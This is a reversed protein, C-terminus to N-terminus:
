KKAKKADRSVAVTLGAFLFLLTMPPYAYTVHCPIDALDAILCVLAPLPLLRQWFPLSRNLLLRVAHFVFAACFAFLLLFGPLGNELFTQLLTCHCHHVPYLVPIRLENVPPIPNHVSQGLLLNGPSAFIVQLVNKWVTLRGALTIDPDVALEFGRHAIEEAGEAAARSLLLAGRSRIMQFADLTYSQLFAVAVASAAFLVAILGWKGATLALSGPRGPKLRDYAALAILLAFTIGSILYATRTGTLSGTVFLVLVALVYVAKLLKLRTLAFGLCCVAASACLIIGSIVPYYILQLRADTTTTFFESNLNQVPVGTVAASLGTVAYVLAAATWVLCFLSLFTKRDKPSLVRGVAYCGFFAYASMVFVPSESELVAQGLVSTRIIKLALLLLLVWFLRDKWLRGLLISIGAFVLLPVTLGSAGTFVNKYNLTVYVHHLLMAAAFLMYVWTIEKRRTLPDAVWRDAAKLFRNLPRVRAFLFALLTLLAAPLLTTLPHFGYGTFVRSAAHPSFSIEAVPANPNVYLSLQSYRAMGLPFVIERTGASCNQESTEYRGDERYWYLEAYTEKELPKEFRVVVSGFAGLALPDRIPGGPLTQVPEPQVYHVSSPSALWRVVDAATFVLLLCVFLLLIKKLSFAPHGTETSTM